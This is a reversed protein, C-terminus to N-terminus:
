GFDSFHGDDIVKWVDAFQCDHKVQEFDVFHDTVFMANSSWTYKKFFNRLARWWLHLSMMAHYHRVKM